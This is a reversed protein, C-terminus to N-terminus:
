REAGTSPPAAEAAPPEGATPLPPTATSAPPAAAIVAVGADPPTTAPALRTVVPREAYQRALLEAYWIPHRHEVYGRDVKGSFMAGLLKANAPVLFAALHVLILLLLLVASLTHLLTNATIFTESFGVGPLNKLVKVVGTLTVLALMAAIAAYALRQEALYKASPPEPGGTLMARIIRASESIDGRRPLFGFARRLLGHYAGHFTLAFMLAAAGIYHLMLTIAYDATWALGPVESLMYRKYLPMQGFGTFLLSLTSLAITWHVARNVWPQRLVRGSEDGILLHDDTDLLRDTWTARPNPEVPAPLPAPAVGPRGAAATPPRLPLTTAM